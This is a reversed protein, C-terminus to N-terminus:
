SIRGLGSSLGFSLEREELVCVENPCDRNEGDSALFLLSSDVPLSQQKNARNAELVNQKLNLWRKGEGAKM